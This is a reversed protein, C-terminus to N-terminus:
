ESFLWRVAPIRLLEPFTSALDLAPGTVKLVLLSVLAAIAFGAFIPPSFLIQVLLLGLAGLIIVAYVRLYEWDFIKIGTGLVLGAQKLINFIIMTSMTGTAAGLAGYRPILVLNVGLNV